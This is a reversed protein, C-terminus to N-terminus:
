RGCADVAPASAQAVSKRRTTSGLRGRVAAVTPLGRAREWGGGLSSLRFGALRPSGEPATLKLRTRLGVGGEGIWRCADMRRTRRHRTAEANSPLALACTWNSGSTPVEISHGSPLQTEPAWVTVRM